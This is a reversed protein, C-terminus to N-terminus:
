DVMFVFSIIGNAAVLTFRPIILSLSTLSLCVGYSIM